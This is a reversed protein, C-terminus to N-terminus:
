LMTGKDSGFKKIVSAYKSFFESNISYYVTRGENRCKLAHADTLLNLHYYTATLGKNFTNAIETTTIEGKSKIFNLLDVRIDESLAKSIAGIKVNNLSKSLEDLNQPMEYGFVIYFNKCAITSLLEEQLLSVSYYVSGDSPPNISFTKCFRQQVSQDAMMEKINEIRKAEKNYLRKIYEYKEILENVLIDTYISRNYNFHMIQLKIKDPIEVKALVEYLYDASLIINPEINKCDTYHILIDNFLDISKIRECIASFYNGDEYGGKENYFYREAVYSHKGGVYFFMYLKDNIEPNDM